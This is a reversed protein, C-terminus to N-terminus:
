IRGLWAKFDGSYSTQFAFDYGYEDNYPYIFIERNTITDFTNYDLKINNCIACSPILNYM